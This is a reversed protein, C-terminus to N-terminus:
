SQSTLGSSKASNIREMSKVLWQTANSAHNEVALVPTDSKQENVRAEISRVKEEVFRREVVTTRVVGVTMECVVGETARKVAKSPLRVAISRLNDVLLDSPNLLLDQQHTILKKL